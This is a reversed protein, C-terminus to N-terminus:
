WLNGIVMERVFKNLWCRRDSSKELIEDRIVYLLDELGQGSGRTTFIEV